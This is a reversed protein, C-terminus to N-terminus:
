ARLRGPPAAPLPLTSLSTRIPPQRCTVARAMARGGADLTPNRPFLPTPVRALAMHCRTSGSGPADCGPGTARLHGRHAADAGYARNLSRHSQMEFARRATSRLNREGCHLEPAAVPQLCLRQALLGSVCHVSELRNPLWVSVRDGQASRGAHLDAAVRMSGAVLVAVLDPPAASDRLAYASAVSPLM